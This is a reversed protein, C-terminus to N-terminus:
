GIHSLPDDAIFKPVQSIHEVPKATLAGGNFVVKPIGFSDVPCNPLRINEVWVLDPQSKSYAFVVEIPQGNYLTTGIRTEM